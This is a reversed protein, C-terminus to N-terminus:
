GAMCSDPVSVAIEENMEKATDSMEYEIPRMDVEGDSANGCGSMGFILCLALM